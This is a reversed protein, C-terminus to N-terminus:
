RVTQAVRRAAMRSDIRRMAWWPVAVTLAIGALSCFALWYAMWTGGNLWLGYFVPAAMVFGRVENAAILLWGLKALAALLTGMISVHWWHVGVIM